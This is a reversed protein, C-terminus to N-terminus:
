KCSKRYEAPSMGVCEKFVRAFYKADTYGAKEAIEYQKFQTGILLEKAKSLRYNRIYVSFPEGVEKHFQAGLYEQSINLRNAIEGLTIGSSYFEHIMSQAKKVTLSVAGDERGPLCLASLVAEFPQRLEWVTRASMVRDLVERQEVAQGDMHGVEKAISLFSWLFRVYSDKIEGPTYIKIGSFYAHFQQALKRVRPLDGACISIKMQNELEIPYVCVETQLRTIEPCSILTGDGLSLSWDMHEELQRYGERLHGACSVETIGFGLNDEPMERRWLQIQYQYWAEFAQRSSYGYVLALVSKDYEVDIICFGGLDQGKLLEEIRRRARGRSDPFGDGLYFLLELINDNPGLGYARELFATTEENLPMGSHLVGSM